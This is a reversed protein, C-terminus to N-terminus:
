LRVNRCRKKTDPDDIVTERGHCTFFGIASQSGGVKITRLQSLWQRHCSALHTLRYGFQILSNLSILPQSSSEFYRIVGVLVGM